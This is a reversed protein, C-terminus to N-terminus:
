GATGAMIPDLPQSSRWRAVKARGKALLGDLQREVVNMNSVFLRHKSKMSEEFGTLAHAAEEEQEM